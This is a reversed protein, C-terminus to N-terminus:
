SRGKFCIRLSTSQLADTTTEEAVSSVRVRRLVVSLADLWMLMALAAANELLKQYPIVM